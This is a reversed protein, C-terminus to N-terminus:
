DWKSHHRYFCSFRYSRASPRRRLDSAGKVELRLERRLSRSHSFQSEVGACEHHEACTVGKNVQLIVFAARVAFRDLWRDTRTAKKLMWGQKLVDECSNQSSLFTAYALEAGGGRNTGKVTLLTGLYAQMRGEADVIFHLSHKQM